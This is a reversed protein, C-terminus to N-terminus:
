YQEARKILESAYEESVELITALETVETEVLESLTDIGADRLLQSRKPGIGNIISTELEAECRVKEYDSDVGKIQTKLELIENELSEIKEILQRNREVVEEYETVKVFGLREMIGM